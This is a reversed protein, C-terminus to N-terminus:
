GFRECYINEASIGQELAIETTIEVLRPPGCLYIDPLIDTQKLHEVLADAPTGRFGDWEDSPKWVCLTVVLKPLSRQLDALEERCFIEAENNVGLFLQTPHDEGWDAMRRLISLFPALGTGGAIFCRPNLCQGQLGFTGSPGHVNLVQGVEAQNQLFQSFQGQDQLRILFELRGEWNTTNAISYARKLALDPVDLEIFQGAEFDFTLGKEEDDLLNLVLLVTREALPKIATITAKRPLAQRNQIRDANYPTHIVLDSRPYTRCLLLDKTEAANEPLLGESYNKLEYDGSDCVALCSGCSGMKCIAPPFFGVAEAADQITQSPECNFQIKEGDLTALTISHSM